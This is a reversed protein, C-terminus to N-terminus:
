GQVFKVRIPKMDNITKGMGPANFAFMYLYELGHSCSTTKQCSVIDVMCPGYFDNYSVRVMDGNLYRDIIAEGEEYSSVTVELQPNSEPDQELVGQLILVNDPTPIRYKTNGVQLSTLEQDSETTEVNAVVDNAEVDLKWQYSSAQSLKLGNGLLLGSYNSVEADDQTYQVVINGEWTKSPQMLEVSIKNDATKFQYGLLVDGSLGGISSVGGVEYQKGNVELTKLAGGTVTGKANANITPVQYYQGNCELRKLYGVDEGTHGVPNAMVSYNQYIVGDCELRRLYPPDLPTGSPNAVVSHNKYVSGDVKLSKLYPDEDTTAVNAEVSSGAGGGGLEWNGSESLVYTKKTKDPETVVITSSALPVGYDSGNKTVFSKGNSVEVIDQESDAFFNLIYGNDMKKAYDLYLM